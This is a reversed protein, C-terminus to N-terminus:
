NVATCANQQKVNGSEVVESVCSKSSQGGSSQEGGNDAALRKRM